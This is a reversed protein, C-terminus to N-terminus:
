PFFSSSSSSFPANRSNTAQLNQKSLIIVMGAFIALYIYSNQVNVVFPYELFMVVIQPNDPVIKNQENSIVRIKDNDRMESTVEHRWRDM